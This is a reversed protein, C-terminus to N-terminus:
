KLRARLGILSNRPNMFDSGTTGRTYETPTNVTIADLKNKKKKLPNKLPHFTCTVERTTLRMCFTETIFPSCNVNDLKPCLLLLRPAIASKKKKRRAM